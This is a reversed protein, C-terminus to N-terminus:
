NGPPQRRPPSGQSATLRQAAWQTGAAVEAELEDIRGNDALLAVLRKAAITDKEAHQRLVTLAEDIHGQKVLLDSLKVAAEYDGDASRAQLEEIRGLEALRKDLEYICAEDRGEARRRLEILTEEVDRETMLDEAWDSVTYRETRGQGHLLDTLRQTAFVDGLNARQRLETNRGQETLLEALRQSAYLNGADAASRLEDVRGQEAM